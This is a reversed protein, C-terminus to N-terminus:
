AVEVGPPFPVVRGGIADKRMPEPMPSPVLRIDDQNWTEVKFLKRRTGWYILRGIAEYHTRGRHYHEPEDAFWAVWYHSGARRCLIHPM